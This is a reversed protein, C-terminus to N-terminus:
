KLLQRRPFVPKYVNKEANKLMVANELMIAHERMGGNGKLFCQQAM